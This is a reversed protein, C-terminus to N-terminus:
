FRAYTWSLDKLRRALEPSLDEEKLRWRWNGKKSAPKNLRAEPGLALLDQMPIIVAKAVSAMLLRVMEWPIEEPTPTKGLYKYVRQRGEPSLEEIFWGKLTNNDHTGTYAFCNTNFNHPLYPSKPFDDGFAFQLVRMGPLGLSAMLERVEATIIGLDEVVFPLTYFHRRLEEFFAEAPGKKWHGRTADESHPDIAWYAVFGRFHDLRLLHFWRLNHKIRYIWWKYGEEEMVEWRYLPNGWRQGKPSFYDPPVGAVFLPMGEPDLEFLHQNAWVDASDHTVYIPIDGILLVGKQECYGKIEGLQKFFLYQFFAEKLFADQFEEIAWEFLSFTPRKFEKPWLYWPRGEFRAKLVKFTCWPWLWEKNGELFAEWHWSRTGKFSSWAKELLPYKLLYAREYDCIDGKPVQAEKVDKEELLGEELLRELSIFLPNGAFASPSSYPSNDLIPDTPGFPLLQWLRQGSTELFDVFKFAWPGLDGVGYPSPLSTIHLLVGSSRM